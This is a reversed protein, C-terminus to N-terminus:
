SVKQVQAWMADESEDPRIQRLALIFRGSDNTYDCTVLLLLRDGWQVDIPLNYISRSQMKLVFLEFSTEDFVFQRVDFYHQSNSDMSASFAAFPVYTRNEYITDFQILAHKKLFSPEGYADLLGFMTNNKMNHGYVILCDDEPVLRNAGDLFLTGETASAQEFNHDLYYTNDNERQVVPLTIIDDITLFGVTEPNLQILEDFASQVPPPTPLAYVLTNENATALPSLPEDPQATAMPEPTVPAPSATPSSSVPMTATPAPNGAPTATAWVVGTSKSEATYMSHYRESATRIRNLRIYWVATYIGMLVIVIILLLIILTLRARKRRDPSAHKLDGPLHCIQQFLSKRPTNSM